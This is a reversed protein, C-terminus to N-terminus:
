LKCWIKTTEEKQNMSSHTQSADPSLPEPVQHSGNDPPYSFGSLLSPPRSACTVTLSFPPQLPINFSQNTSNAHPQTTMEMELLFADIKHMIVHKQREDMKRLRAAVLEGYICCEDRLSHTRSKKRKINSQEKFAEGM